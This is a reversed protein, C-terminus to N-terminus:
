HRKFMHSGYDQSGSVRHTIPKLPLISSPVIPQARSHLKYPLPPARFQWSPPWRRRGTSSTLSKPKSPKQPFSAISWFHNLPLFSSSTVAHRVRPKFSPVHALHPLPPQLQTATVCRSQPLRRALSPQYRASSGSSVPGTCFYFCFFYLSGFQAVLPVRALISNTGSLSFLFAKWFKKEAFNFKLGFRIYKWIGCLKFM